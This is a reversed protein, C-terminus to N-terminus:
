PLPVKEMWVDDEFDFESNKDSRDTWILYAFPDNAQNSTASDIYDGIFAEDSHSEADSIPINESFWGWKGPWTWAGYIAYKSNPAGTWFSVRHDMWAVFVVPVGNIVKVNVTAYGQAFGPSDRSVMHPFSWTNYPYGPSRVYFIDGAEADAGPLGQSPDPCGNWTASPTPDATYVIHAIGDPGIMISPFMASAWRHYQCNPGLKWTLEYHMNDVATVEPGWTAGYDGSSRCRIDFAGTLYGDNESHYWCVLVHGVSPSIARGGIPRSGQVVPPCGATTLVTPASWALGGNTSRSFEIQCGAPTFVTATVYVKDNTNSDPFFRHVDIWPKDPFRGPGGPIAVVPTTCWSQGNNTSRCVVIFSTIDDLVSMYVAYVIAGNPSYRVVPDSCTHAPNLLPLLTVFSWTLGGDTSRFVACRGTGLAHFAAVVFKPNTPNVTISPENEHIVPHVGVPTDATPVVESRPSVTIRMGKLMYETVGKAQLVAMLAGGSLKDLYQDLWGSPPEQVPSAVAGMDAIDGAVVATRWVVLGLLGAAALSILVAFSGVAAFGSSKRLIEHTFFL